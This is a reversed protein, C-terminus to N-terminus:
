GVLVQRSALQTWALRENHRCKPDLAPCRFSLHQMQHLGGQHRCPSERLSLDSVKELYFAWVIHLSTFQLAEVHLSCQLCHM